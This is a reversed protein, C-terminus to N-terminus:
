ILFRLSYSFQNNQSLCDSSIIHEVGPKVLVNSGYLFNESLLVCLVALSICPLVKLSSVSSLSVVLSQYCQVTAAIDEGRCLAFAPRRNMFFILFLIDIQCALQLVLLILCGYIDHVTCQSCLAWTCSWIYVGKM